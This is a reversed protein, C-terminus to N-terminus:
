IGPLFKGIARRVNDAESGSLGCIKQLFSIVQEQYVLQGYTDSLLDDIMKSPNHHFNKKVLSDRYSAGSPRIMATVLSMDEISQTKFDRLTKYAFESEFQFIGIKSLKISDWVNKDNWNIEYSKPYDKGLLKCTEKILGVSRLGLVDYKVLGIEHVAEMDLCIIKKGDSIFTGYNDSLTIPSAIIGAPHMSQSVATGVLGDFYYFLDKYKERAAMEDQEYLLKIKKVEDLPYELARGIDDMAGKEAITGLALVYATNNEGFKNIIYDYVFPRDDEYIDIDIDGVEVRDENCFRSFVTNWKVPDLDIIDTIYAIRSGGCNHVAINNVVFSHSDKVTIDYVTEKHKPYKTINEIKLYYFNDDNKYRSLNLPARVKYAERSHFGRSDIHEPRVDMALIENQVCGSLIRFASILSPSINDFCKRGDKISGDTKLLGLYLWRLNDNSQNFLKPNFKKIRGKKSEFFETKVWNNLINSNIFIQLLDKEKNQNFWVDSGLREAMKLFAYKNFGGKEKSNVAIGIGYKQVTWGDGYIMGIFLNTLYDMPIFRKIKRTIKARKKSYAIYNEVTDFPVNEMIKDFLEKNPIHGNMVRNIIARNIGPINNEMWHSSYDFPKNTPQVEYIYEDDYDFGFINYDNLDIMEIKDPQYDNKPIPACLLDTKKIKDAEVFINEGNRNVLFKHDLTCEMKYKKTLSGCGYYDIEITPENVDYKQTGIVEHFKGDHSLVMDGIKITDITRLTDKCQVLADKTFCSGRANGLPHGNNRAWRCIDSMSLMFGSMNVKSFVRLEEEIDNKFDEVENKPIIGNEIKEELMKYTLNRLTEDDNDSMHPYKISTDLEFNEVSDAMKNTNDIAELIVDMPLSNQVRFMEVLDEHSKYTLDFENEIDAFDSGKDKKSTGFIAGTKAKQLILRCEAKYKNISHTDTGAILPKNYKLSLEYLKKNYNVQEPVNHYQIEYYDYHNLLKPIIHTLNNLDEKKIDILNQYVLRIETDRITFLESELEVIENQLSLVRNEIMNIPSALCASIRIVNDSINIFEEFTIRPKYYVHNNETSKSIISNLELVGQYNKAILITHYNDRIKYEDIGNKDRNLRYHYLKETLYVECGHIYKIGYKDCLRKKETWLYINGHETSAIATQGLEYAKKVYDEFKTCSDLLSLESHLHYVVYNKNNM